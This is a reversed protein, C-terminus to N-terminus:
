ARILDTNLTVIQHPQDTSAYRETLAMVDEFTVPDLATELLRVRQAVPAMSIQATLRQQEWRREQQFEAISLGPRQPLVALYERVCTHCAPYISLRRIAGGCSCQRM